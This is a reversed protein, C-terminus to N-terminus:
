GKRLARLAVLSKLYYYDGYATTADIGLDHPLDATAHLLLGGFSDVNGCTKALAKLLREAAELHRKEGTISHLKLLGYSAIASASSDKPQNEGEALFDWLPVDDAPLNHLFYGAVSESVRALEVDGTMASTIALGTIAWAQGRAWVSEPGQGQYTDGGIPEGTEPNFKYVHYFSGDARRHNELTKVLQGKVVDMLKDPGGQQKGWVLLPLNMLTDVLVSGEWGDTGFFGWGPIYGRREDFQNALSNAAELAAERYREEDLLTWAKIASPYFMFGLDHNHSAKSSPLLRDTFHIAAKKLDEGGDQEFALWLVGAWFGGTWVGDKTCQWEGENTIHPFDTMEGALRRSVSVANEIATDLWDKTVVDTTM